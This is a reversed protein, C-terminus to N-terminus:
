FNLGDTSINAENNSVSKQSSESSQSVSSSSGSEKVVCKSRVLRSGCSISRLAAKGFRFSSLRISCAPRSGAKARM